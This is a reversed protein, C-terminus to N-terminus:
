KLGKHLKAIKEIENTVGKFITCSYLALCYKFFVHYITKNEM